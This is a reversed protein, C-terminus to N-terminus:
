RTIQRGLASRIDAWSCGMAPDDALEKSRRRAEAVGGDDDMLVAPLSDLLEAALAARDPEALEMAQKHIEKLTM